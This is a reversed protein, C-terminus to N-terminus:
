SHSCGPIGSRATGFDPIKMTEGVRVITVVGEDGLILPHREVDWGQLLSHGSGQDILKLLSTCMGAADVRALLQRPGPEPVSM